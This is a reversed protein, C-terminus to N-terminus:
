CLVSPLEHNTELEVLQNDLKSYASVLQGMVWAESYSLSQAVEQRSRPRPTEFFKARIVLLEQPSLCSNCMQEIFSILSLYENIKEEARAQREEFRVIKNILADGPAPPTFQLRDDDYSCKISMGYADDYLASLSDRESKIMRKYVPVLSLINKASNM